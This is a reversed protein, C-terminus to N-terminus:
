FFGRTAADLPQGLSGLVSHSIAPAVAPAAGTAERKLKREKRQCKPCQHEAGHQECASCRSHAPEVPSRLVQQALQDAEREDKDNPQSVTLEPSFGSSISSTARNRGREGQGLNELFSIANQNGSQQIQRFLRPMSRVPRLESRPLAPDRRSVFGSKRERDKM